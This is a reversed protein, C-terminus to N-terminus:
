EFRPRLDYLLWRTFKEVVAEIKESAEEVHTGDGFCGAAIMSDDGFLLLHGWADGDYAADIRVAPNRSTQSPDGKETETMIYAPNTSTLLRFPRGYWDFRVGNSCYEYQTTERFVESVGHGIEHPRFYTDLLGFFMKYAPADIAQKREREWRWYGERWKRLDFNTM